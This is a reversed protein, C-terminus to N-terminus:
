HTKEVDKKTHHITGVPHHPPGYISSIKLANRGINIINHWIGAPVFIVDGTCARAQYDLQKKCEGMKVLAMGQEIRIMQDTKEHIELGIDSGVPICMIMMQAYCGTWMERRFDTNKMAMGSVNAVYPCPTYNPKPRYYDNCM